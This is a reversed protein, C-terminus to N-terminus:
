PNRKRRSDVPETATPPPPPGRKHLEDIYDMLISEREDSMCELVLWRLDNKLIEKIDRLHLDSEEIMKKSKDTILKTEKLLSRFETWAKKELEEMYREFESKCVSDSSSFREYRLDDKTKKKVDKWSSTLMVKVDSLMQHFGKRKKSRLLQIHQEFLHEREVSELLSFDSWRHDKKLVHKADRWSLESDRVMDTLFAKFGGLTEEKRHQERSVHWEKSQDERAKRVEKERERLSAEIRDRRERDKKVTEDDENADQAQVLKSIYAQFLTERLRSGDVAKYRSDHEFKGKVKNWSSKPKLSRRESLMEFFDDKVKDEQHRAEEKQRVKLESLFETFLAERERMKEIGKFRSDRGHKLSFESFTTKVTLKSEELLKRYDDKKERLRKSKEKREEEARKKVYVDYAGRRERVTLLLYREDFVFKPLEKEWTSFASVNRETLMEHFRQQREDLSLTARLNAARQEASLVAPEADEDTKLKKAAPEGEEGDEGKKEEEEKDEEELQEGKDSEDSEGKGEPMEMLKELNAVGSLEKPIEWVSVKSVPNFFFVRGDGTFVVQWAKGPIPRSAIPRDSPQEKKAEKATIEQVEDQTENSPKETEKSDNAEESSMSSTTTLSSASTKPVTSTTIAAPTSFTSLSTVTAAVSTSLSIIPPPVPGIAQFDLPKDWKSQQTIRNFYYKRGDTTMHESWIPAFPPPFPMGTVSSLPPMVSPLRHPQVSMPMSFPVRSPPFAMLGVSPQQMSAVVGATPLPLIQSTSTMLSSSSLSSTPVSISPATQPRDWRIMGSSRSIYCIRNDPTKQELWTEGNVDLIIVPVSAPPLLSQSGLVPGQSSPSADNVSVNPPVMPRLGLNTQLPVPLRPPDLERTSGMSSEVGIDMM